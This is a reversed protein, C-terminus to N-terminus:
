CSCCCCSCCCCYSCCSLLRLMLVLMMMVQMCQLHLSKSLVIGLATAFWTTCLLLVCLTGSLALYIWVGSDLQETTAAVLIETGNASMIAATEDCAYDCNMWLTLWIDTFAFCVYTSIVLMAYVAVGKYTLLKVFSSITSTGIGGTKLREQIIIEGKGDTKTSSEIDEELVVAATATEAAGAAGEAGEALGATVRAGSDVAQEEEEREDEGFTIDDVAANAHNAM